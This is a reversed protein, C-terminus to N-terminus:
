VLGTVPTAILEDREAERPVLATLQTRLHGHHKAPEAARATALGGGSASTVLVVALTAGTALGRRLRKATTM